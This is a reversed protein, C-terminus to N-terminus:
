AYKAKIGNNKLEKKFKKWQKNSSGIMPLPCTKGNCDWHRLITKANPCKRQIYKILLMVSQMQAKTPYGSTYNCLEISVSNSNLCKQYYKGAGDKKTFFGGVAYANDKMRISQFVIGDADVFFQAGASRDNGGKPSFYNANGASSDGKNGTYHIPIYEVATLPRSSGYSIHKAYRVYITLGEKTTFKSDYQSEKPTAM